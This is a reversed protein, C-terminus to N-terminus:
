VVCCGARVPAVRGSEQNGGKCQHRARRRRCVAGAFAHFQLNEAGAAGLQLIFPGRRTVEYPLVTPRAEDDVTAAPARKLKPAGAGVHRLEIGNEERVEVDIV